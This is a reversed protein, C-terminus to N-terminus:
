RLEEQGRFYLDPKAAPLEDRTFGLLQSLREDVALLSRDALDITKLAWERHEAKASDAALIREAAAKSDKFTRVQELAFLVLELASIGYPSDIQDVGRLHLVHELRHRGNASIEFYQGSEDIEVAEPRITRPTLESGEAIVMYGNGCVEADRTVQNQFQRMALVALSSQAADRAKSPAGSLRIHAQGGGIMSVTNDIARRASDIENYVQRLAPIRRALEERSNFPDRQYRVQLRVGLEHARRAAAAAAERWGFRIADSFQRDGLADADQTQHDIESVDDAAQAAKVVRDRELLQFLFALASEVQIEAPHNVVLAFRIEGGTAKPDVFAGDDDVELVHFGYLVFPTGPIFRVSCFCVRLEEGNGVAARNVEAALADLAEGARDIHDRSAVDQFGIPRPNGPEFRASPPNAPVAQV